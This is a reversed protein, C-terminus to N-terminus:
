QIIWHRPSLSNLPNRCPKKRMALRHELALNQQHIENNEAPYFHGRPATPPPRSRGDRGGSGFWEVTWSLFFSEFEARSGCVLIFISLILICVDDDCFWFQV